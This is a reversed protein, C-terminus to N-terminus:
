DSLEERQSSDVATGFRTVLFGNLQAAQQLFNRGISIELGLCPGARDSDIGQVGARGCAYGLVKTSGDFIDNAIRNPVGPWASIHFDGHAPHFSNSNRSSHNLHAVVARSHGHDMESFDEKRKIADRIGVPCLCAASTQAQGNGFANDPHMSSAYSSRIGM